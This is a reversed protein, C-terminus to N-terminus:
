KRGAGSDEHLPYLVFVNYNAGSSGFVSLPAGLGCTTCHHLLYNTQRSLWLTLLTIATFTTCNIAEKPFKWMPMRRRQVFRPLKTRAHRDKQGGPVVGLTYWLDGTAPSLCSGIVSKMNHLIVTAEVQKEATRMSLGMATDM